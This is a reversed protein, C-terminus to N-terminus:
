ERSMDSIQSGRRGFVIEMLREDLEAANLADLDRCIVRSAGPLGRDSRQSRTTKGKDRVFRGFLGLFCQVLPECHSYLCKNTSDDSMTARERDM